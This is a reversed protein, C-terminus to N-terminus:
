RYGQKGTRGTLDRYLQAGGSHRAAQHADTKVLEIKNYLKGSNQKVVETHHWTYGKPTKAHGALRNAEAFDDGYKGTMEITVSSKGPGAYLYKSFDPYGNKKVPIKFGKLKAIPNLKGRFKSNTIVKGGATKLSKLVKSACITANHVVFMWWSVLYTHWDAVELNYVPITHETHHQVERVPMAQGDARMIEDGVVLEGAIKWAGNTWFPHEPTARVTDAGVRLAVLADAERRITQTVPKLALDSTAENWAWVLDGVNLDEINTYGGQVAVPTGAPFCATVCLRPVKKAFSKLAAPIGEKLAAAKLATAALKKSAMGVAVKGGAKLAARLGAKGAMMGATATGFSFVGAVVSVADWVLFAGNLAMGVKDGTQAAHIFDRGSGWIPILGEAFSAEGVSNKEKEAEELSDEAEEKVEKLEQSVDPPLPLQGSTLFEIKGQGVPCNICSRFLLADGGGVKAPYTDQWTAPAPVCPTPTGGAMQTLKKCIVFSPINVIPLKDLENGALLGAIKTTRPTATFPM